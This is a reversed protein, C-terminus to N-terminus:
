RETYFMSCFYIVEQLNYQVIPNKSKGAQLFSLQFDLVLWSGCLGNICVTLDNKASCIKIGRKLLM